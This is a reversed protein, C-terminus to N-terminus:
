GTLRSLDEASEDEKEPNPPCPLAPDDAPTMRSNKRVEDLMGAGKAYDPRYTILRFLGWLAAGIGALVLVLRGM